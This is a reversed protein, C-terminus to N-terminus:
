DGPPVSGRLSLPKEGRLRLAIDALIRRDFRATSHSFVLTGQTWIPEVGPPATNRAGVIADNTHAYCVLEYGAGPLADDLRWQLENRRASAWDGDIDPLFQGAAIDIAAGLHDIAQEHQGPPLTAAADLQAEFVTVDYWVTLGQRLSYRWGAM